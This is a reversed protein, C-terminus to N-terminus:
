SGLNVIARGQSNGALMETIAPDLETLGIERAIQSLVPIKWEDALRRWLERRLPMATTASDAGHLSIGRLIFPYVTMSLNGSTVNGCCTVVGHHQTSRLVTSLTTGGVTEVAAVWRQPLLARDSSDNVYARDVIERAGVAKLFDHCSTKGTSATVHYGNHALLAVALSGVGGSAGTVLIQGDEPRVGSRQIKDVCLAATFGATGYIMSERISLGSPLPVVWEAPVRIFQGFGGATNMGLDYGTVIVPDGPQVDADSSEAVVGSADIGPTHPYRRTVGKNGSASLADKYNLSSYQVKILVEGKPLDSLAKEGIHRTIRHDTTEEVILARFSSDTM